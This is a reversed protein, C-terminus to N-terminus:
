AGCRLEEVGVVGGGADDVAGMVRISADGSMSVCLGCDPMSGTICHM